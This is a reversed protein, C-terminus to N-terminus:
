TMECTVLFTFPELLNHQIQANQITFTYTRGVHGTSVQIGALYGALQQYIPTFTPNECQQSKNCLEITVKYGRPNFVPDVSVKPRSGPRPEPNFTVPSMELRFLPQRTWHLHVDFTIDMKAPAPPKRYAVPHTVPGSADVVGCGGCDDGCGPESPSASGTPQGTPGATGTPLDTPSPMGTETPVPASVAGASASAAAFAPFEQAAAGGAGTATVAAALLAASIVAFLMLQRVRRRRM